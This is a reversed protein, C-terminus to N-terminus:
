KQTIEGLLQEVAQTMLEERVHRFRIVGKADLIYIAPIGRDPWKNSIAITHGEWWSRWNIKHKEMVQKLAVRSEDRNVGLYAFPQGALKKVLSRGHPVMAM